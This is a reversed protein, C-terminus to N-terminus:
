YNSRAAQRMFAGASIARLLCCRYDVAASYGTWAESGREPWQEMLAKLREVDVIEASPGFMEIREIEEMVNDHAQHLWEHWDAAQLGHRKNDLVERPVRDALMKRLLARPEGGHILQEAPVRLSFEVLRRDATPDRCDLGWEALMGKYMAGNDDWALLALRDTLSDPSPRTWGTAMLRERAGPVTSERAAALLEERLEAQKLASYRSASTLPGYIREILPAYLRSPIWHSFSNWVIRKLPIKRKRALAVFLKGWSLLRGRRLLEPLALIGTESISTNGASAELMVTLGRAAADENIAEFWTANDINLIPMGYISATRSLNALQTRDSRIIVHEINPHMQATASALGSEDGLRHPFAKDYGARPAATYAIVTGGRGALQRAATTTVATSDFGSSLHSGVRQDVGRLAAAVATEFRESLAEAYDEHTALQLPSLNPNWYRRQEVGSQTVIAFHGPMIRGIEEFHTKGPSLSEVALFRKMSQLDPGRPISPIAHLGAPMSAFAFFSRAAHYFLPRQGLHDRGLLLRREHTDWAAIAFSGYLRNFADEHWQEVAMAAIAADSLGAREHGLGLQDALDERETLRVDAAVTYRPSPQLASVFRDEPLSRHLRRGLSIEGGDTWVQRSDSGHRSLASDLRSFDTALEGDDFRWLGYIATM